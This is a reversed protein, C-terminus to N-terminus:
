VWTLLTSHPLNVYTVYPWKTPIYLHIISALTVFHKEPVLGLKNTTMLGDCTHSHSDIMYM